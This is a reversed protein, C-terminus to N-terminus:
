CLLWCTRECFGCLIWVLCGFCVGCGVLEKEMDVCFKCFVVVACVVVLLNRCLILVSDVFSLWLM